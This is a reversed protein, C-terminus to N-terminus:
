GKETYLRDFINNTENDPKRSGAAVPNINGYKSLIYCLMMQPLAINAQSTVLLKGRQLMISSRSVNKESVLRM